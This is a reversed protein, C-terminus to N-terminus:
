RPAFRGFNAVLGVYFARPQAGTVPIIVGGDIALEPRVVFTPGTLVAVIPAGGAPGSTGPLGYTELAWGLSETIPIGAAVTWLTATVPAQTGDGSRWTAGVNIDVGIPGFTRSNILLLSVDTTGTGRIDGSAFKVTPLVAIDQWLPHDELLRWKLGISVDGAGFPVGTASSSPLNLSLQLPKALGFKLVTGVQLARTGDAIRDHELGTELEWYGPAVTGAHTAVSPREPQVSRPHYASGASPASTASEADSAAPARLAGERALSDRTPTPRETIREAAAGVVPRPARDVLVRDGTHHAGEYGRVTLRRTAVGNVEVHEVSVPDCSQADRGPRRVFCLARQAAGAADTVRGESWRGYHQRSESVTGDAARHVVLLADDGDEALVWITTDSPSSKRVDVWQGALSAVPAPAEAPPAVTGGCAAAILLGSALLERPCARPRAGAQPLAVRARGRVVAM